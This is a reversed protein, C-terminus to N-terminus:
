VKARDRVEALGYKKTLKGNEFVTVLKDDNKEDFPVTKYEGNIEVLQLRGKKSKKSIDKPEKFVDYWKGDRKQASSKTM